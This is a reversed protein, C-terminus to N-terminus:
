PTVPMYDLSVGHLEHVSPARAPHGFASLVLRVAIKRQAALAAPLPITYTGAESGHVAFPSVTGLLAGHRDYVVIQDGKRLFGAHVRLIPAEGAKAVHSQTLIFARGAAAEAGQALLVLFALAVALRTM